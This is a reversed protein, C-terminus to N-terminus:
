GNLSTVITGQSRYETLVSILPWCFVDFFLITCRVMFVLSILISIHQIHEDLYLYTM